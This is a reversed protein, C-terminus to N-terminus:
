TFVMLANYKFDNTELHVLVHFKIYALTFPALFSPFSIYLGRGKHMDHRIYYFMMHLSNYIYDRHWLIYSFSILTVLWLIDHWIHSSFWDLYLLSRVSALNFLTLCHFWLFLTIHDIVHLLLTSYFYIAILKYWLMFFLWVVHHLHSLHVDFLSRLLLFSWGRIYSTVWVWVGMFTYCSWWLVLM